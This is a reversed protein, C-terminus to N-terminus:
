KVRQWGGQVYVRVDKHKELSPEKKVAATIAADISEAKVTTEVDMGGKAEAFGCVKYAKKAM